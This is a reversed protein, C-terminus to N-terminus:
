PECSDLKLRSESIFHLECAMKLLTIKPGIIM